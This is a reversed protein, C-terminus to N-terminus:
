APYVSVETAKVSAWVESGPALALETGAGPTIEAVIALDGELRVRLRDGEDDISTVRGSWVNRPTGEPRARYLAVARPHVAAFVEGTIPSAAVLTAGGIDIGDRDAVGRFLNIGVVSAVYASRPRSRLDDPTGAQVVRGNELVVVRDALVLAELPDHTVLITPGAFTRLHRAVMTRIEVRSAADLAAFPEDLLLAKPRGAFARALAVRQREGGSISRPHSGALAGLEFSEIIAAARERAGAMTAGSSRAAFTINREVTMHPFLLLDQFVMGIRRDETRVFTRPGDMARGEVAVDGCPGLSGAIGRLLTTKGAGNPGLLVVIEGAAVELRAEVSSGDLDIRMDASLSM